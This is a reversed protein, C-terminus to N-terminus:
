EPLGDGNHEGHHSYHMWRIKRSDHLINGIYVDGDKKWGLLTVSDLAIIKEFDIQHTM